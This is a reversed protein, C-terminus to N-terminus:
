YQREGSSLDLKAMNVVQKVLLVKGEKHKM